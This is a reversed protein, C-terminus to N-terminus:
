RNARAQIFVSRIAQVVLDPSCLHIEHCSNSAVVLSGAGSLTALGAKLANPGNTLIVLPLNGLPHPRSLRESRLAVFLERESEGTYLSTAHQGDNDRFFKQEAWLRAPQLEAPLRNFPPGLRPPIGPPSAPQARLNQMFINLEDRSVLAIPKPKGDIIYANGEEHTPDVLVMGSILEPFRRYYDRVLIGGASQGVLIYPPDIKAARLLLQFDAVTQEPFDRIAAPDSWAYGARDYTCIRTFKSVPMQVLAWDISFAGAGNEVLVTPKDTGTCYLHLHRGGIDVLRGPPAPSGSQQAGAVAAIFFAASFLCIWEIRM